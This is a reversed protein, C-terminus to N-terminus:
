RDGRPGRSPAGTHTTWARGRCSDRARGIRAALWPAVAPIVYAIPQTVSLRRMAVVVVLMAAAGALAGLDIGDSYFM